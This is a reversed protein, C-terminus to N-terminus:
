IQRRDKLHDEFYFHGRLGDDIIEKIAEVSPAMGIRDTSQMSFEIGPRLRDKLSDPLYLYKEALRKDVTRIRQYLADKM